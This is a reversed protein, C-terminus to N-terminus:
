QGSGQTWVAAHTGIVSVTAYRVAANIEGQACLSPNVHVSNLSAFRLNAVSMNWGLIRLSEGVTATLAGYPPAPEDRHGCATLALVAVILLALVSWRVRLATM